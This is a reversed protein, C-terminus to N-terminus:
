CCGCGGLSKELRASRGVFSIAQENMVLCCKLKDVICSNIRRQKIFWCASAKAWLRADFGWRLMYQVISGGRKKATIKKSLRFFVFSIIVLAPMENCCIAAHFLFACFENWAFAFQCILPSLVVTGDVSVILEILWNNTAIEVFAYKDSLTPYRIKLHFPMTQLEHPM